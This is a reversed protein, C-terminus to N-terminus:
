KLIPLVLALHELILKTSSANDDLYKKATVLHRYNVTDKGTKKEFINLITRVNQRTKLEDKDNLMKLREHLGSKMFKSTLETKTEADEDITNKQFIALRSILTPLLILSEPVILFFTSGDLPEEMLKLLSNQAEPSIRTASIVFVRKQGFIPTSAARSRVNRSDDISMLDFDLFECDCEDMWGIENLAVKKNGRTLFAHHKQDM